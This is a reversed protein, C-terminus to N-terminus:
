PTNMRFAVKFCSGGSAVHEAWVKGNLLLANQHAIALGLGVGEHRRNLSGDGQVFPEFIRELMGDPIGIGSDTIACLIMDEESDSSFRSAELLVAGQRTFKLANGLLIDLLRRLKDRDTWIQDPLDDAICLSLAVKKRTFAPQHEDIISYLLNRFNLLDHLPAGNLQTNLDQFSLLQNIMTMMNDASQRAMALYEAGVGVLGEESLLDLAGIVGNMPTRMEHSITSMFTNKDADAKQLAARAFDLEAMSEKLEATRRAVAAELENRHNKEMQQMNRYKVARLIVKCLFDLDFPKYIFDFAGNKIADVAMQLQAHGTMLIVPLDPWSDHVRGLFAVGDEGPMMIDSIVADFTEVVLLKCAEVANEACTVRFNIKQLCLSVMTRIEPEDDVVLIHAISQGASPTLESM